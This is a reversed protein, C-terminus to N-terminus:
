GASLGYVWGWLLPRVWSQTGDAITCVRSPAGRGGSAGNSDVGLSRRWPLPGPGTIATVCGAQRVRVHVIDHDHAREVGDPYQAFYAELCRDRDVGTPIDAIGECQVTM